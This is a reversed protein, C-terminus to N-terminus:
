DPYFFPRLSQGNQIAEKVMERVEELTLGHKRAYRDLPSEEESKKPIINVKSKPCGNNQDSNAM